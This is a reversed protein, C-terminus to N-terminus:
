RSRSSDHQQRRAIIKAMVEPRVRTRYEQATENKRALPLEWNGTAKNIADKMALMNENHKNIATNLELQKQKLDREQKKVFTIWEAQDTHRAKSGEVGRDLGWKKGVSEFVKDQLDRLGERDGLYHGSTYKYGKETQIIPIDIVHMHPEKEDYHISYQLTKDGFRKQHFALCDHFFRDAEAFFDPKKRLEEWFEPSASYVFEIGHATNKQPKRMGSKRYDDVVAAWVNMIGQQGSFPRNHNKFSLEPHVIWDAKETGQRGNHHSVNVLGAATKIKRAHCIIFSMATGREGPEVEARRVCKFIKKLTYGL